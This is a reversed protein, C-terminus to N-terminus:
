REKPAHHRKTAHKTEANANSAHQLDLYLVCCVACWAGEEEESLQGWQCTTHACVVLANVCVILPVALAATCLM